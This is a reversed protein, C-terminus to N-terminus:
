LDGLQLPAVRGPANAVDFHLTAEDIDDLSEDRRDALAALLQRGLGAQDVVDQSGAGLAHAALRLGRQVLHPVRHLEVVEAELGQGAQVREDQRAARARPEPRPRPPALRLLEEVEDTVPGEELVGHAPHALEDRVLADEDDRRGLVPREDVLLEGLQPGVVQHDLRVRAPVGGRDPERHRREVGEIRVRDDRHQRGVVDDLLLASEPAHEDRGRGGGLGAPEHREPDRGIARVRTEAVDLRTLREVDTPWQRDELHLAEDFLRLRVRRRLHQGRATM